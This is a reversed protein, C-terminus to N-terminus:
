LVQYFRQRLIRLQTLRQPPTLRLLQANHQSQAIGHIIAVTALTRKMLGIHSANTTANHAYTSANTVTTKQSRIQITSTQCSISRSPIRTALPWSRNSVQRFGISHLKGTNEVYKAPTCMGMTLCKTAVLAILSHTRKDSEQGGKTSAINAASCAIGPQMPLTAKSPNMKIQGHSIAM